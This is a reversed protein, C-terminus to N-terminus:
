SFRKKMKVLEASYAARNSKKAEMVAEDANYAWIDFMWIGQDDYVSYNKM